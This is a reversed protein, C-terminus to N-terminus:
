SVEDKIVVDRYMRGPHVKNLKHRQKWTMRGPVAVPEHHEAKVHEARQEVTSFWYSCLDCPLDLHHALIGHVVLAGPTFFHLSCFRCYHKVAHIASNRLHLDLANPTPFDRNCTMCMTSAIDPHPIRGQPHSSKRHSKRDKKSPFVADCIPCMLRIDKHIVPPSLTPPKDLAGQDPLVTQQDVLIIAATPPTPMSRTASDVKVDSPGLSTRTSGATPQRIPNQEFWRTDTGQPKSPKDRSAPARKPQYREVPLYFSGSADTPHDSQAHLDREAQNSFIRLCVSCGTTNARQAAKM